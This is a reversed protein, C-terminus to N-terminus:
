SGSIQFENGSLTLVLSIKVKLSVILFKFPTVHLQRTHWLQGPNSEVKEWGGM